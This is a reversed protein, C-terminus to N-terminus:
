KSRVLIAPHGSNAITAVMEQAKSKSSFPGLLVRHITKEGEVVEVKGSHFKKMKKLESDANVSNSFSGVQVFFKKGKSAKPAIEKTIKKASIKQKSKKAVPKEAQDEKSLDYEVVREQKDASGAAVIANDSINTSDEQRNQSLNEYPQTQLTQQIAQSSAAGFDENNQQRIEVKRPATRIESSMGQSALAQANLEPTRTVVSRAKGQLDVIRIQPQDNKSSCSAFFLSLFIVLSKSFFNTIRM